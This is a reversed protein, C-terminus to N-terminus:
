DVAGALLTLVGRNVSCPDGGPLSTDMAAIGNALQIASYCHPDGGPRTTSHEVGRQDGFWTSTSGSRAAPDATFHGGPMGWVLLSQLEGNDFQCGVLYPSASGVLEPVPDDPPDPRLHRPYGAWGVATCPDFPAGVEQASPPPDLDGLPQADPNERAPPVLQVAREALATLQQVGDCPSVEITMTEVSPRNIWSHEALEVGTSQFTARCPEIWSGGDLEAPRGAITDTFSDTSDTIGLEVRVSTSGFLGTAVSARCSTPDDIGVDTNEGTLATEGSATTLVTAVVACPDVDALVLAPSTLGASRLPPDTLRPGLATVYDRVVDCPPRGASPGARFGWGVQIGWSEQGAQVLPYEYACSDARNVANSLRVGDVTIAAGPIGWGSALREDPRLLRAVAITLEWEGVDDPPSLSLTCEDLGSTDDPLLASPHWGTIRTAAPIDHMACLDWGRVGAFRAATTRLDPPMPLEAVPGGHAANGTRDPTGSTTCAALSVAVVLVLAARRL